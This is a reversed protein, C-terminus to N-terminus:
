TVGRKSSKDALTIEESLSRDVNAVREELVKLSSLTANRVKSQALM